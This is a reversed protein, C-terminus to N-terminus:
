LREMAGGGGGRRKWAHYLTARCTARHRRPTPRKHTSLRRAYPQSTSSRCAARKHNPIGCAPPTLAASRADAFDVCGAHDSHQPRRCARNWICNYPYLQHAPPPVGSHTLRPDHVQWTDGLATLHPPCVLPLHTPASFAMSPWPLGQCPSIQPSPHSPPTTYEPRLRKEMGLRHAELM